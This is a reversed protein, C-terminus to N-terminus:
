KKEFCSPPGRRYSKSSSGSSSRSNRSAGAGAAAAASDFDKTAAAVAAVQQQREREWEDAPEQGCSWNGEGAASEEEWGRDWGSSWNSGWGSDWRNGWRSGWSQGWWASYGGPKRTKKAFIIPWTLYAEHLLRASARDGFKLFVGALSIGFVDCVCASGRHKGDAVPWILANPVLQSHFLNQYKPDGAASEYRVDVLITQKECHDTIADTGSPRRYEFEHKKALGMISDKVQGLATLGTKAGGPRNGGAALLPRSAPMRDITDRLTTVAELYNNRANAPDCTM